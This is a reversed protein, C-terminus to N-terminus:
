SGNTKTEQNSLVEVCAMGLEANAKWTQLLQERLRANERALEGCRKAICKPCQSRRHFWCGRLTNRVFGIFGSETRSDSPHDNCAQRWKSM